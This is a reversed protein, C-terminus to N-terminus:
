RRALLNLRVYNAVVPEGLRAPRRRRVAAARGGAAPGPALRPDITSFYERPDEPEVPWPQLWTWVDTFGAARLRAATQEPTAFNWPGAWGRLAPHDIADIAAQVNAVNGAAASPPSAAAPGCRPTCAPSSGSTTPSGTSPRPRSSRTSPGTSSWDLLDSAFADVRDGLRERTVEVMAASGDVAVVAGNPVRELLSRPSAAPAAARTSCASTAACTLRDIVDRAMALQPDSVRDYSAANWERPPM